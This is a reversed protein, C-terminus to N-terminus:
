EVTVKMTMKHPHTACYIHFTGTKGFKHRYSGSKKKKSTWNGHEETVTHKHNTGESAWKWKLRTGKAITVKQPAFFDDGVKVIPTEAGHVRTGSASGAAGALLGAAALTVLLKRM